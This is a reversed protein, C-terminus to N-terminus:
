NSQECVFERTACCNNPKSSEITLEGEGVPDQQRDPAQHLAEGAHRGQVADVEVDAGALHVAQEALVAGALRGQDLHEGARVLGSSPSIRQLPSGTTARCGSAAIREADGGDVLLEVEDVPKRHGLVDEEPVLRRAIRGRGARRLGARAARSSSARSPWGSIRASRSTPRSDAAACCITLMARASDCSARSSIMSSGDATSSGRPPASRNRTM